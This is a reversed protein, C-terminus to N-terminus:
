RGTAESLDLGICWFRFKRFEEAIHGLTVEHPSMVVVGLHPQPPIPYDDVTARNPRLRIHIGVSLVQDELPSVRFPVDLVLSNAVIDFSRHSTKPFRSIKLLYTGHSPEEHTLNRRCRRLYRWEQAVVPAPGLFCFDGEGIGNLSKQGETLMEQQM